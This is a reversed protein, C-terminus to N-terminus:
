ERRRFIMLAALGLGALAFTSPEPIINITLTDATPGAGWTYQYSGPILDLSSITSNGWTTTGQLPSGSTYGDPTYIGLPSSGTVLHAIGLADGSGSTGMFTDGTCFPFPGTINGVWLSVSADPMGVTLLSSDGTGWLTGAILGGNGAGGVFALAAMNFTGSATAVVDNGSQQVNIVVAATSPLAHLSTLAVVTVIFRPLV